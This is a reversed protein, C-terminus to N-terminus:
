ITENESWSFIISIMGNLINILQNINYTRYRIQTNEVVLKIPTDIYLYNNTQLLKIDSLSTESDIFDSVQTLIKTEVSHTLNKRITVVEVRYNFLTHNESVLFIVHPKNFWNTPLLNEIYSIENDLIYQRIQSQYLKKTQSKIEYDTVSLQSKLPLKSITNRIDNLNSKIQSVIFDSETTDDQVYSQIVLGITNCLEIMDSKLFDIPNRTLSDTLSAYLKRVDMNLSFPNISKNFLLPLWWFETNDWQEIAIESLNTNGSLPKVSINNRNLSIRLDKNFIDNITINNYKIPNYLKM